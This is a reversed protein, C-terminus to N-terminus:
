CNDCNDPKTIFILLGSIFTAISFLIICTKKRKIKDVMLMLPYYTLIDAVNLVTESIYINFGIQAIILSPGYYVVYTAMSIIGQAITTARLSDFRFVDLPTSM